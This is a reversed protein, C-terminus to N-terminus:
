STEMAGQISTFPSTGTLDPSKGRALLAGCYGCPFTKEVQTLGPRYRASHVLGM